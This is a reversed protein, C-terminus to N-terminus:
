LKLVLILFLTTLVKTRGSVLQTVEPLNSLRDSSQNGGQYSPWCLHQSAHGQCSHILPCKYAGLM